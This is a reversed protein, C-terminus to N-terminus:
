NIKNLEQEVFAAYQEAIEQRKEENLLGFTDGQTFDWLNLLPYNETKENVKLASESLYKIAHWGETNTYENEKLNLEEIESCKEINPMTTNDIGLFFGRERSRDNAQLTWVIGNQKIRFYIPTHKNPHYLLDTIALHSSRGEVEIKLQQLENGLNDMFSAIAHWYIHKYNKLIFIASAMLHEEVINRLSKEIDEPQLNIEDKHKHLFEQLTGVLSEDKNSCLKTFLDQNLKVNPSVCHLADLYQQILEVTPSHKDDNYFSLIIENLWPEINGLYTILHFDKDENNGITRSYDDNNEEKFTKENPEHGDLSLYYLEINQKPCSFYTGEDKLEKNKVIGGTEVQLLYRALQGNNEGMDSDKAYIKNEIIIAFKQNETEVDNYILIDMERDETWNSANPRVKVNFLDYTKYKSNIQELFLKLPENGLGHPGKSDLLWTIFRSHLEVERHPKVFTTIVNFGKKYQQNKERVEKVINLLEKLNEEM